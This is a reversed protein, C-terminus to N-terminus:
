KTKGFRSTKGKNTIVLGESFAPKIENLLKLAEKSSMEPLNMIISIVKDPFNLQECDRLSQLLKGLDDKGLQSSRITIISNM